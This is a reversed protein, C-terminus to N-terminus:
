ATYHTLLLFSPVCMMPKLDAFGRSQVDPPCGRGGGGLGPTRPKGGLCRRQHQRPPPHGRVGVVDEVPGEPGKGRRTSEATRDPRFFPPISSPRFPITTLTQWQRPGKIPM